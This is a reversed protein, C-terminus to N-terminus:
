RGLESALRYRFQDTKTLAVLLEVVNGGSEQMAAALRELACADQETAERGHGYVLWNKAFCAKADDSHVIRQLLDVADAFSGRADTEYLTGSADIAQGNEQTRWLGIADYHEFAFGIPDIDRHCEQCPAAQTAMELRQRGTADPRIAPPLSLDVDPPPPPLTVCLLNNLVALGRQVPRTSHGPSTARLFASQTLVGARQTPDLEVRQFADGSVGPLGYLEALKGNVFTSPESFLAQFTGAGDFTVHEVFRASEERALQAVEATYRQAEPGEAATANHLPLLQEFFHRTVLRSGAGGLLRRAQAEVEAEGLSGAKAAARLEADPMSGTLFYSLRTATEYSGLAVVGDQVEGEGQEILYLFDPGQLVVEVVARVGSAFDGGLERGTAFVQQMEVLEEESAPHRYALELFRELFQERCPADDNATPTCGALGAVLTPDNSVASATVHAIEHYREVTLESPPQLSEGSFTAPLRDIELVAAEVVAPAERFLDRYTSTVQFTNLRRLPSPGPEPIDGCALEVGPPDGSSGGDSGSGSGSGDGGDHPQSQAGDNRTSRGCAALLALLLGTTLLARTKV